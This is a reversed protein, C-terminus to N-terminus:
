KPEEIVGLEILDGMLEPSLKKKVEDEKVKVTYVLKQAEEFTILPLVLGSDAEMSKNFEDVFKEYGISDKGANFPVGDVTSTSFQKILSQRTKEINEKIDKYKMAAVSLLWTKPGDFGTPESVLITELGKVCKQLTKLTNIKGKDSM